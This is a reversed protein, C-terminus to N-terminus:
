ISSPSIATIFPLLEIALEDSRLVRVLNCMEKEKFDSSCVLWVLEGQLSIRPLFSAPVSGSGIEM